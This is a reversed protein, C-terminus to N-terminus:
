HIYVPTGEPLTDYFWRADEVTLRICGHSAPQGLRAEEEKIINQDADMPVSHFLYVGWDKFSVWWRGGQQYKQSFFWEGRNQLRFHGTPTPKDATGTSATMERVTVGDQFVLVRQEALRVEVSYGASGTPGGAPVPENGSSLDQGDSRAPNAGSLDSQQQRGPDDSVPDLSAPKSETSSDTSDAPGAPSAMGPYPGGPADDQTAALTRGSDSSNRLSCGGLGLILALGLLVLLVFLSVQWLRRQYGRVGNM